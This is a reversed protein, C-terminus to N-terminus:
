RRNDGADVPVQDGLNLHLYEGLVIEESDVEIIENDRNVRYKNRGLLSLEELANKSRVESLYRYSYKNRYCGLFLMNEFRLTTAIFAALVM